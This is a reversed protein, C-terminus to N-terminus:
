RGPNSNWTADPADTSRPLSDKFGLSRSRLPVTSVNLNQVYNVSVTDILPFQSVINRVKAYVVACDAINLRKEIAYYLADMYLAHTHGLLTKNSAKTTEPYFIAAALLLYLEVLTLGISNIATYGSGLFRLYDGDVKLVSELVYRSVHLGGRGTSIWIYYEGKHFYNAYHVLYSILYKEMLLTRQDDFSLDHFGVLLSGFTALREATREMVATIVRLWHSPTTQPEQPVLGDRLATIMFTSFAVIQDGYATEYAETVGAIVKELASNRARVIEFYKDITSPCLLSHVFHSPLTSQLIEASDRRFDSSDSFRVLQGSRFQLSSSFRGTRLGIPQNGTQPTQRYCDPPPQLPVVSNVGVDSSPSTDSSRSETHLPAFRTVSKVRHGLSSSGSPIPHSQDYDLSRKRSSREDPSRMQVSRKARSM